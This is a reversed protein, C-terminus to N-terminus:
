LARWFPISNVENIITVCGEPIPVFCKLFLLWFSKLRFCLPCFNDKSRSSRTQEHVNIGAIGRILTKLKRYNKTSM